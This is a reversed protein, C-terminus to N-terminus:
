KQLKSKLGKSCFYSKLNIILEIVKGEEEEKEEEDKKKKM